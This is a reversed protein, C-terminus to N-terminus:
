WRTKSGNVAGRELPHNGRAFEEFLFTAVADPWLYLLGGPEAGQARPLGTAREGLTLLDPGVRLFLDRWVEYAMEM